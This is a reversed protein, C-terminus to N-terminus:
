NIPAAAPASTPQTSNAGAIGDFLLHNFARTRSASLPDTPDVVTAEDHHYIM